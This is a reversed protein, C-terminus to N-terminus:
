INVCFILIIGLIWHLHSSLCHISHPRTGCSLHSSTRGRTWALIQTLQAARHRIVQVREGPTIGTRAAHNSHWSYAMWCPLSQIWQGIKGLWRRYAPLSSDDRNISSSVVAKLPWQYFLFEFEPRQNRARTTQRWTEWSLAVIRMRM